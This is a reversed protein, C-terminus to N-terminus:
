TSGLGDKNKTMEHVLSRVEWDPTERSRVSLLLSLHALMSVGAQLHPSPLPFHRDKTVVGVNLALCGFHFPFIM